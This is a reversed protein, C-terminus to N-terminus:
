SRAASSSEMLVALSTMTANPAPLRLQAAPVPRAFLFGQGYAWGHERARQWQDETEVGEVVGHLNLNRVLDSVAATIRDASGGDGLRRTFSEDLKLGSIPTTMVSSLASYGTGFDDMLMEVGMDRLAEMEKLSSGIASLVSNETIEIGLRRPSVGSANLADAIVGDLNRGLQVPSVNVFVRWDTTPHLALFACAHRLVLEGLQITLQTEEAVELFDGPLLLGRAPHHWRLLAELAVAERTSMEVIPQYFIEFQDEEIAVRLESEISLHMLARSRM